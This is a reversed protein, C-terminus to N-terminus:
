RRRISKFGQAVTSLGHSFITRAVGEFFRFILTSFKEYVAHEVLSVYLVYFKTRILASYQYIGTRISPQWTKVMSRFDLM